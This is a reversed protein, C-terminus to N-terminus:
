SSCLKKKVITNTKYYRNKPRKRDLSLEKRANRKLSDTIKPFLVNYPNNESIKTKRNIHKKKLISSFLTKIQNSREIRSKEERKLAAISISNDNIM